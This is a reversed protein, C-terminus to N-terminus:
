KAGCLVAKWYLSASPDTLWMIFSRIDQTAFWFNWVKLIYHKILYWFLIGVGSRLENFKLFDHWVTIDFSKLINTHKNQFYILEDTWMLLHNLGSSGLGRTVLLIGEQEFATPASYVYSLQESIIEVNGSVEKFFAKAVNWGIVYFFFWMCMCWIEVECGLYM